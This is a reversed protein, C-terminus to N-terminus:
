LNAKALPVAGAARLRRVVFADRRAPSGELALSGATTMMRDATDLNDKIVIPIGHLPGRVKGARRESDLAQAIALADPNAEIIANVRPGNRDLSEIRELYAQTIAVSTTEGSAMQSQLQSITQQEM